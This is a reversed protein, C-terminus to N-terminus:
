SVKCLIDTSPIILFTDGEHKVEKAEGKVFIVRDGVGVPVDVHNGKKDTTGPGVAVVFGEIPVNPETINTVIIGSETQKKAKVPYVMVLDRLLTFNTKPKM